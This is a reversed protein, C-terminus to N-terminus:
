AAEYILAGDLRYGSAGPYTGNYFTLVALTASGLGGDVQNGTLFNERACVLIATGALSAPVPLSIGIYTGATGNTTITITWAFYIFKGLQCWRGTASATTFAGSGPTITPAYATFGRIHRPMLISM